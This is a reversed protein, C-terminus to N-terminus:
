AARGLACVALPQAKGALAVEGLPEAVIGEPLTLQALLRQSIVTAHGLEGCLKELRSATNLTDGLFTIERRADGVEGVAVPGAHLAARVVPATGFERAYAPGEAAMRAAIAFRCRVIAADDIAAALPWTAIIADGVYRYIEGRHATIEDGVDRVLRDLFALFRADGIREALATSGAVDLLLFAREESRPRHYRGTVLRWLTGRGLLRGLEVLAVIVFTVAVSFGADRAFAGVGVSAPDHLALATAALVAAIWAVWLATRLLVFPVFPLRRLARGGRTSLAFAEIAGIGGAIAAGVSAGIALTTADRAGAAFLYAGGCGAGALVGVFV